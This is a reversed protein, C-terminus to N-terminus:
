KCIYNKFFDETEKSLAKWLHGIKFLIVWKLARSSCHHVRVQWTDSRGQCWEFNKCSTHAQIDSMIVASAWILVVKRWFWRGQTFNFCFVWEFDSGLLQHSMPQLIFEPFDTCAFFTTGKEQCHWKERCKRWRWRGILLFLSFEPSVYLFYKIHHFMWIWAEQNVLEVPELFNTELSM